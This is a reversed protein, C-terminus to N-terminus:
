SGEGTRDPGATPRKGSDPFSTNEFRTLALATREDETLSLVPGSLQPFPQLIEYDAFVESWALLTEGLRDEADVDM